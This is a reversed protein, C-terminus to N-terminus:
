GKLSGSIVTGVPEGRAVRVINDPQNLDFVIIPLNNEMCLSVAAADM